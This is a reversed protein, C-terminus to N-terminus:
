GQAYAYNLAAKRLQDSLYQAVPTLPLGNRRVICMPAAPTVDPLDLAQFLSAMPTFNVWQEPLITLLDTNAVTLVTILSSRSHMVIQPPPLGIRDFMAEFDAETTRTSLTPRIWRANVLDHLSRAGALPHGKRCVVRRSNVFLEEIVCSSSVSAPDLPGVWFDIEGRAVENEIPQFLSESIKVLADPFRKSFAAIAKPLLSMSSATSLAVTVEGVHRGKLQAVEDRARRLEAELSRARRYFVEGLPTLQAGKSHREFLPVGLERELEQISRTIVPQAIGLHRGAARLSGSEAVALLHSIHTFKM